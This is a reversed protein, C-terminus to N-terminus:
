HKGRPVGTEQELLVSLWLIISINNFTANFVMVRVSDREVIIFQMKINIVNM